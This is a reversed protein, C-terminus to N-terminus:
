ASPPTVSTKCSAPNRKPFTLIADDAVGDCLGEVNGSAVDFVRGAVGGCGVGALITTECFGAGPAFITIPAAISRSTRQPWLNARILVSRSGSERDTDTFGHSANKWSPLSSVMVRNSELFPECIPVM